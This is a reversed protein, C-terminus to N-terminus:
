SSSASARAQRQLRNRATAEVSTMSVRNCNRDGIRAYLEELVEDRLEATEYTGLDTIEDDHMIAQITYSPSGYKFPQILKVYQLNVGMHNELEVFRTQVMRQGKQSNDLSGQRPKRTPDNPVADGILLM